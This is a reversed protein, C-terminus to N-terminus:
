IISGVQLISDVFIIPDLPSTSTGQVNKWTSFYGDGRQPPYIWLSTFELLCAVQLLFYVRIIPDLSRTSTGQVNERSYFFGDHRRSPYVWLSTFGLLPTFKFLPTLELLPISPRRPFYGTCKKPRLLLWGREMFSQSTLFHARIISDVRLPASLLRPLVRRMKELTFIAM